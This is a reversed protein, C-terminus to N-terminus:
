QSPSGTSKLLFQNLAERAAPLTQMAGWNHTFDNASSSALLAKFPDQGTQQGAVRARRWYLSLDPEWRRYERELWARLDHYEHEDSPSAQGARYIRIVLAELADWRAIFGKLRRNRNNKLLARTVINM